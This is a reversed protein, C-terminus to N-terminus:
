SGPIAQQDEHAREQALLEELWNLDAIVGSSQLEQMKGQSLSLYSRYVFPVWFTIEGKSSREEFFGIDRLAKAVGVTEVEDLRWLRSLSEINHETKQERLAEIFPRLQPYEAFLQRNVKYESLAPLAEKFSARDFLWDGQPEPEGRELRRNQVQVLSNLFLIIDRPQTTKSGDATRRIMWDLTNSQKEGLEVQDPFVQNFFQDQKRSSQMIQDRDAGYIEIVGANSLLRRIVLNKLSAKDWTLSIDRSMHTAERFGEETIRKWIDTRLFIKVKIREQKRNDRYARFLARLANRELNSSEDFAVDLRDLMLWVDYGAVALAEDAKALLEDLSVYGKKQEEIRPDEFLIKGTLATPQGTDPQLVVGGEISAPRMIRSAYARVSQLIAGLTTKKAPMLGHEELRALVEKSHANNIGYEDFARAILTIFYLKWIAIFERESTPPDTGLDRFAPTGRPNEASVLIVTKDFLDDAHDQTLVYLASKGAGKPGYVIDVEGNLIRDWAQTKVFYEKLAEREEEAIQNGFTLKRITEAKKGEEM